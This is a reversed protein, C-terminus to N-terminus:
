RLVRRYRLYLQEAVVSSANTTVIFDSANPRFDPYTLIPPMTLIQKLKGFAETCKETWNLKSTKTVEFLPNMIESANKIFRRFFNCMGLFRKVEKVTRPQPYEVIAKINSNDPLIGQHSVVHGLYKVQTRFLSCKTPKIKLNHDVLRQLVLDLNNLHDDFSKGLVILDDIYAICIDWSIGALVLSMLRQYTAVGNAVGFPLVKFQYLSNGSSFATFEKSDDNMPIQYYGKAMDLTSFYVSESLSNLIDEINPLPFSDLKTKANLLRYDICLRLSNDRKRVPM